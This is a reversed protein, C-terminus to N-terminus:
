GGGGGIMANPMWLALAPITITIVLVIVQMGVWHPVAHWIDATTVGKPAIGKMLILCWGFPPTLYAIQMNLIFVVGFWIPDWGLKVAIPLFIPACITIIAFDDMFMGLILLIIQMGALIFWRNVELGLIIGSVMQQAGASSYVNSFFTAAILIMLAMGSIKITERTSDFLVKWSFRRYIFVAIFSCFAGVAASETPTAIGFFISGLVALVVVVPIVLEKLGAWRMSWTVKEAIRPGYHPQFYSRLLIYCTYIATCIFGPIFGGFFLKGISLRTISGFIIMMLSPPILDGLIGGAMVSGLALDKSYGRKLMAPVAIIGMTLLGPGFGGAMALAVCVVLSVLALGGRVGSLWYSLATFLRDAIGSHVMLNGMLVFLPITILSTNTITNYTTLGVILLGSNGSLVYVVIVSIAGMAIFVRVGLFMLLLMGGFLVLTVLEIGM